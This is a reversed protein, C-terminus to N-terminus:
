HQLENQVGKKIFYIKYNVFFTSSILAFLISGEIISIIGIPIRMMIQVQYAGSTLAGFFLSFAMSILPNFNALCAIIMATYGYGPNIDIQLQHIVGSVQVM